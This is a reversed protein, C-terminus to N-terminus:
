TFYDENDDDEYTRRSRRNRGRDTDNRFAQKAIYEAEEYTNAEVGYSRVLMGNMRFEGSGILRAM